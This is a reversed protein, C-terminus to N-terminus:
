SHRRGREVRCVGVLCYALQVGVRGGVAHQGYRILFGHEDVIESAAWAERQGNPKVLIELWRHDWEFLTLADHEDAIELMGRVDFCGLVKQTLDHGSKVRCQQRRVRDINDAVGEILLQSM